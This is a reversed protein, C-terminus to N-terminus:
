VSIRRPRPRDDEGGPRTERTREGSTEPGAVITGRELRITRWGPHAWLRQRVEGEADLLSRYTSNVRAALEAPHGDEIVRGRAVVLVRDFGATEAIDHTVCILTAHRWRERARRLLVARREHELGRFPEDLIALRAEPRGLGRGFRVRQGEGGSVLTGGEGILTQMGEPLQEVLGRLEADVVRKGVPLQLDADQGFELNEILSRNWLQVAPDVWATCSRVRNLELGELRGGDV